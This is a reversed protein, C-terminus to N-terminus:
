HATDDLLALQIAALLESPALSKHVCGRGGAASAARVFDPDTYCTVFLVRAQPTAALIRRATDFGNLDPLGIDMLILAPALAAAKQVGEWGSGATDVLTVGKGRLLAIAYARWDLNDDVILVRIQSLDTM